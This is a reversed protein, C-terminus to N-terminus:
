LLSQLHYVAYHEQTVLHATGGLEQFVSCNEEIDDLLVSNTYDTALLKFFTGNADSKRIGSDCSNIIKNFVTELAYAPATFRNLCDMNDTALVTTYKEQLQKILELAATDVGITESSEVFLSWLDSYDIGLKEAVFSNIEESTM